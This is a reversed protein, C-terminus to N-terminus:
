FPRWGHFRCPRKQEDGRGESIWFYPKNDSGFGAHADAGSQERTVEMLLTIALPALAQQYFRKSAEFDSVPYGIHDLM